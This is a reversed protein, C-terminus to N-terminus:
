RRSMANASAQGARENGRAAPRAAAVAPQAHVCEPVAQQELGASPKRGPLVVEPLHLDLRQRARARDPQPRAADQRVMQHGSRAADLGAGARRVQGRHLQPQGDGRGREPGSRRRHAFLAHVQAFPLGLLLEHVAPRRAAAFGPRDPRQRGAPHQRGESAFASFALLLGGAFVALRSTLKKTM